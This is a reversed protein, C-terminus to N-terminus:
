SPLKFFETFFLIICSFLKFFSSSRNYKLNNLHTTSVTIKIREAGIISHVPNRNTITPQQPYQKNRNLRQQQNCNFIKFLYNVNIQKTTYYYSYKARQDFQNLRRGRLASNRTRDGYPHYTSAFCTDMM